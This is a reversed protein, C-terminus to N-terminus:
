REFDRWYAMWELFVAPDAPPLRVTIADPM